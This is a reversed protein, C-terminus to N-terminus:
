FDSFFLNDLLPIINYIHTNMFIKKRILSTTIIEDLFM